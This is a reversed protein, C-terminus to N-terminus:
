IHSGGALETARHCSPESLFLPRQWCKQTPSLQRKARVRISSLEAGGWIDRIDKLRSSQYHFESPTLRLLDTCSSKLPFQRPSWFNRDEVAEIGSKKVSLLLPSKEEQCQLESSPPRTPTQSGESKSIKGTKTLCMHTHSWGM